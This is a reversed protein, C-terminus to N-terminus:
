PSAMNIEQFGKKFMEYAVSNSKVFDLFHDVDKQFAKQFKCSDHKYYKMHEVDHLLPIVNVILINGYQFDRHEIFSKKLKFAIETINKVVQEWESKPEANEAFYDCGRIGNKVFETILYSKEKFPGIYKELIAVPTFTPIQLKKLTNINFLAKKAYSKRFCNKIFHRINRVNYRKIVFEQNTIKVVAITTSDGKTNKYFINNKDDLLTDISAVVSDIAVFYKEDCFLRYNKKKQYIFNSNNLIM